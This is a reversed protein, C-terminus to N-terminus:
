FFKRMNELQLQDCSLKVWNYSVNYIRFHALIKNEMTIWELSHCAASMLPSSYPAPWTVHVIISSSTLSFLAALRSHCCLKRYAHAGRISRYNFPFSLFFPPQRRLVINTRQWSLILPDRSLITSSIIYNIYVHPSVVVLFCLFWPM